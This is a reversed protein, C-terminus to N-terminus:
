DCYQDSSIKRLYKLGIIIILQDIISFRYHGHAEESVRLYVTEGLIYLLHLLHM